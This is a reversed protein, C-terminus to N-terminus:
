VPQHVSFCVPCIVNRQKNSCIAQQVIDIGRKVTFNMVALLVLWHIMAVAPNRWRRKALMGTRELVRVGIHEM